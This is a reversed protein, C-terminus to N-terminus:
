PRSRLAPHDKSKKQDESSKQYLFEEIKPSSKKQDESSKKVHFFYHDLKMGGLTSFLAFNLYFQLNDGGISLM